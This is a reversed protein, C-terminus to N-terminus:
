WQRRDEFIKGEVLRPLLTHCIWSHLSDHKSCVLIITRMFALPLREAGTLFVGSMHDLASMVLSDTFIDENDLCLRIADLYRKQPLGAAQFDLKHLYVLQECATLGKLTPTEPSPEERFLLAHRGLREGMKVLAAMFISDEADVFEPLKKVLDDRSMASLIPILFRADKTEGHRKKDQIEFCVDVFEQSPMGKEGLPALNDLLAFLLPFEVPSSMEAVKRAIEAAGHKTGAARALKSMQQRVTKSLVDAKPVSSLEFLTKIIEPRRICLAMFLVAPKRVKDMASKEEESDPAFPARISHEKGAESEATAKNAKQIKEYQAVAFNSAVKLETIAAEVVSNALADTRAYVVNMVLKLAKDEFSPSAGFHGSALAVATQVAGRRTEADTRQFAADRLVLLAMTARKEAAQKGAHLAASTAITQNSQKQSAEKVKKSIDDIDCMASILKLASPTLRPLVGFEHQM